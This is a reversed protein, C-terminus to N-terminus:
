CMAKSCVEKRREAAEADQSSERSNNEDIKTPRVVAIPRSPEIHTNQVTQVTTLNHLPDRNVNKEISAVKANSQMPVKLPERHRSTYTAPFDRTTGARDSSFVNGIPYSTSRSNSVKSSPEKKAFRVDAEAQTQSTGANGVNFTNPLISSAIFSTNPNSNVLKRSTEDKAVATKIVPSKRVKRPLLHLIGSSEEPVDSFRVNKRKITSESSKIPSRSKTCSKLIIPGTSKSKAAKLNSTLTSASTSKSSSTTSPLNKKPIKYSGLSHRSANLEAGSLDHPSKGTVLNATALKVKPNRAPDFESSFNRIKASSAWEVKPRAFTTASVSTGFHKLRKEAIFKRSATGSENSNEISQDSSQKCINKHVPCQGFMNKPCCSHTGAPFIPM